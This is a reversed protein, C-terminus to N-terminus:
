RTSCSRARFEAVGCSSSRAVASSCIASAPTRAARARTSSDDADSAAACAAAREASAVADYEVIAAGKSPNTVLLSRSGPLM